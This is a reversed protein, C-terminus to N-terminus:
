VFAALEKYGDTDHPDCVTSQFISWEQMHCGQSLAPGKAPPHALCPPNAPDPLTRGIVCTCKSRRAM